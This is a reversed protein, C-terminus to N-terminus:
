YAFESGPLDSGPLDPDAASTKYITDHVNERLTQRVLNFVWSVVM